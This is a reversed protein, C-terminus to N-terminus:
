IQYWKKKKPTTDKRTQIEIILDNNEKNLRQIELRLDSAIDSEDVMVYTSKEGYYGTSVVKFSKKEVFADSQAKLKNYESLKLRVYDTELEKEM